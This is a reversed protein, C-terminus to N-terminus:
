KNELVRNLVSLFGEQIAKRSQSMNMLVENLRESQMQQTERDIAREDARARRDLLMEERDAEIREQELNLRRTELEVQKKQEPQM